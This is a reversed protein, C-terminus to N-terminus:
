ELDHLSHVGFLRYIDLCALPKLGPIGIIIYVTDVLVKLKFEAVSDGLYGDLAVNRLLQTLLHQGKVVIQTQALQQLCVRYEFVFTLEISLRSLILGTQEQLHLSLSVCHWPVVYKSLNCVPDLDILLLIQLLVRLQHLLLLLDLFLDFVFILAM